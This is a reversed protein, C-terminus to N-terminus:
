APLAPLAPVAPVGPVAPAGPVAPVAPLGPVPLAPVAGGLLGGLLGTVLTLLNTLLNSVIDLPPPLKPLAPIPPLQRPKISRDALVKSAEDSYDSSTAAARQAEAKIAYTHGGALDALVPTLKGLTNQTAGVDGAYAVKTLQDRLQLVQAGVATTDTNGKSEQVSAAAVGGTAVALMSGVAIAAVARAIRSKM